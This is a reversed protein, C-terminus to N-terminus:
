SQRPTPFNALTSSVVFISTQWVLWSSTRRRWSCKGELTKRAHCSFQYWHEYVWFHNNKRINEKGEGNLYWETNFLRIRLNVISYIGHGRRRQQKSFIGIRSCEGANPGFEHVSRACRQPSAWDSTRVSAPPKESICPIFYMAIGYCSRAYTLYLCLGVNITNKPM